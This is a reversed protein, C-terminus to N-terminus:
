SPIAPSRRRCPRSARWTPRSAPDCFRLQGPTPPLGEGARAYAALLLVIRVGAERAADLVALALANPDDYPTGDPRHHVYHFEGVTAYGAARAQAFCALSVERILQPDLRTAAAYMEERWTWFDDHPRSPDVREVRGRLDVQFAHSHANVCAPVLLVGELREGEGDRAPRVAVIRGDEIEVALGARVECGPLMALQPVLVSM